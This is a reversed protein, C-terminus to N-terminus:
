HACGTLHRFCVVQMLDFMVDIGAISSQMNGCGRMLFVKNPVQDNEAGVDACAISTAGLGKVVGGVAHRTRAYPLRLRLRRSNGAQNRSTGVGFATSL